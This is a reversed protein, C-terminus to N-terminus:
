YHPPRQQFHNSFSDSNENSPNLFNQIILQTKKEVRELTEQYSIIVSNLEDLLKVQHSIQIELETVRSELNDM